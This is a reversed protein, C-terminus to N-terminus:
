KKEEVSRTDATNKTIHTQWRILYEVTGGWVEDPGADNCTAVQLQCLPEHMPCIGIWDLVFAVSNVMKTPDDTHGGWSLTLDWFSFLSPHLAPVGAAQPAGTASISRMRVFSM